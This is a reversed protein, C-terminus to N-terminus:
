FARTIRYFLRKTLEIAILYFLTILLLIGIVNGPLPVFHFYQAIPLYPLLWGIGVVLIVNLLLLFGPQSQLFPIKRSRIILIVMAQTALSEMFWSTQFQGTSLRFVAFLMFFTIFDFGSSVLGFTVMYKRVAKFDWHIPRKLDSEDVSDTSLSLQSIDYMFNNLLVQAPLMPLFPLFFSAASMSFVNGFNSSLGMLIYKMTNRFTKRGELVGDRLVELSKKLLIIDASEKAVSVANNVSISVDAMKLAPADNIGDGLFGVVHRNGKLIRVIREKQEPGIRAFITTKEVEHSLQDDTLSRVTDGTLIGSIPVGVEQCIRRALIEHDGTIVKVKVGLAELEQIASAVGAKPPDLFAMYGILTMEREDAKSYRMNASVSKQALALVRYGDNSLDDFLQSAKRREADDFAISKRGLRISSCATFVTDPSGRTILQAQKGDAIVISSRKRSFDFPIEDIKRVMSLPFQKAAKVAEDLPNIIGAHLSSAIYATKLVELSERGHADSWKVLIIKNETLTGTKDTCLVDMSGLNQIAILKKVIVSKKAMDVSGRALSVSMIVPLLEPTLGIAIAVAFLFSELIGRGFMANAFFVVIVMFFTIRMIFFSFSKIGREFDTEPKQRQLHEAIRGYETQPGTQIVEVLAYGTVVSTGMLAITPETAIVKEPITMGSRKNVPFSEGTIASENIYLDKAERIFVDAPVVDGADLRVIDGPVILRHPLTVDRGDRCVTVTTAVTSELQEVAKESHFSNVFDIVGSVAVMLLIILANSREGLFYSLISAGILILPLPSKFKELLLWVPRFRRRHAVVNEGYKLLRTTAEQTSLGQCTM